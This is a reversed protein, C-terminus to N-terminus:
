ETENIGDKCPLATAGSQVRTHIRSSVSMVLVVGTCEYCLLVYCTVIAIDLYLGMSVVDGELILVSHSICARVNQVIEASAERRENDKM